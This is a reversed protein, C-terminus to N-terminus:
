STVACIPTWVGRRNVIEVVCPAQQVDVPQIPFLDLESRERDPRGRPVQVPPRGRQISIAVVGVLEASFQQGDHFAVHEVLVAARFGPALAHQGFALFSQCGQEFM